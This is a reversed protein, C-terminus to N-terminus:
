ELDFKALKSLGIIIVIISGLMHVILMYKM